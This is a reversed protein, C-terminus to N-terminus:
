GEEVQGVTGVPPDAVGAADQLVAVTAAAAALLQQGGAGLSGLVVQGVDLVVVTLGVALGLLQQLAVNIAASFHM